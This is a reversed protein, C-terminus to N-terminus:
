AKDPTPPAPANTPAQTPEVPKADTPTPQIQPTGNDVTEYYRKHLHHRFPLWAYVGQIHAAKVPDCTKVQECTKPLPVQKVPTCVKVQPIVKVPECVKVPPVVKVPECVKVPKCVEPVGRTSGIAAETVFAFLGLALMTQLLRTSLM